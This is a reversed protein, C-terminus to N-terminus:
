STALFIVGLKRHVRGGLQFMHPDLAAVGTLGVQFRHIECLVPKSLGDDILDSRKWEIEPRLLMSIYFQLRIDQLHLSSVANLPQSNLGKPKTTPSEVAAHIYKLLRNKVGIKLPSM